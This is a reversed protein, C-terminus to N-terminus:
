KINNQLVKFFDHLSKPTMKKFTSIDNNFLAERVKTASIDEDGRRIEFGTFSPNVGLDERYQPKNIMSDYSKKRDTGYGWLMPEYAPRVAAFLTDIGGNPVVYAAELFPYEKKMKSFMALQTDESFPAKDSVKNSRVILVVVPFGNEKHM